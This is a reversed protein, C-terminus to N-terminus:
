RLKEADLKADGGAAGFLLGLGAEGVGAGSAQKFFEVLAQGEWQGVGLGPGNALDPVVHGALAEHITQEVTVDAGSFGRSARGGHQEGDFGSELGPEHRRGLDQRFLMVESELAEACREADADGQAGAIALFFGPRQWEEVEIAPLGPEEGSVGVTGCGGGRGFGIDDDACMGQKVFAGAKRAEAEGDDVFLVLERTRWRALSRSCPWVGSMSTM